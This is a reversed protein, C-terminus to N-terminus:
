TLKDECHIAAKVTKGINIAVVGLDLASQDPSIQWHKIPSDSLKNQIINTQIKATQRWGTLYRTIIELPM